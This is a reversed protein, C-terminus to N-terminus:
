NLLPFIDPYQMHMNKITMELLSKICQIQSILESPVNNNMIYMYQYDDVPNADLVTLDQHAHKQNRSLIIKTHLELYQRPIHTDSLIYRKHNGISTTYPKAYEILAFRFAPSILPNEYDPNTSNNDQLEIINSIIKWSNQFCSECQNIHFKGEEIDNM